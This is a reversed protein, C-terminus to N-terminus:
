ICRTLSLAYSTLDDGLTTGKPTIKLTLYEVSSPLSLQNCSTKEHLSVKMELKYQTKSIADVGVAEISCVGYGTTNFQTFHNEARSSFVVNKNNNDLLTLIRESNTVQSVKFIYNNAITGKLGTVCFDAAMAFHSTSLSLFSLLFIFFKM